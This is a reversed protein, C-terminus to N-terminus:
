QLHLHGKNVFYSLIDTHIKKKQFSFWYCVYYRCIVWSESLNFTLSYLFIYMNVIFFFGLIAINM